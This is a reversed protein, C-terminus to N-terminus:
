DKHRKHQDRSNQGKRNDITEWKSEWLRNKINAEEARIFNNVSTFLEEMSSPPRAILDKFLRGPRLASIFAGTLMNNLRDTM